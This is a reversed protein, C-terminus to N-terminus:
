GVKAPSLRAAESPPMAAQGRGALATGPRTLLQQLPPSILRKFHRLERGHWMLAGRQSKLVEQAQAGLRPGAALSSFLTHACTSTATPRPFKGPGQAGRDRPVGPASSAAVCPRPGEWGGGGGM